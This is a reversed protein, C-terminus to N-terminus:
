RKITALANEVNHTGFERSAWQKDFAIQKWNGGFSDFKLLSMFKTKEPAPGNMSAPTPIQTGLGKVVRYTDVSTKTEENAVIKEIRFTWIEIALVDPQQPGCNSAKAAELGKQTPRVDIQKTAGTLFMQSPPIDAEQFTVLDRQALAKIGAYDAKSLYAPSEVPGGGVKRIRADGGLV